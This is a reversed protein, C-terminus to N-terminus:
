VSVKKVKKQRLFPPRQALGTLLRQYITSVALPPGFHLLDKM